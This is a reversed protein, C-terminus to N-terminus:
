NGAYPSRVPLKLRHALVVTTTYAPIGGKLTVFTGVPEVSDFYRAALANAPAADSGRVAILADMGLYRDPAGLFAFGRPDGDFAVAPQAPRVAEAARSADQWNSAALFTNPRDLLGKEALGQRLGSWSTAEILFGNLNDNGAITRFNSVVLVAVVAIGALSLASLGALLLPWLRGRGRAGALAKGLLPFLFLWGAMSWHPLGASGLLPLLNFLLIPPLALALLFNGAPSRRWLAVLGALSLGVLLWPLLYIAEGLLTRGFASLDPHVGGGGRGLQFRFSVWDHAGNWWLVPVFMLLALAAAAYPQPRALWRRHAPTLLLCFAGFLTLIAQYKSLLALGLCLGALVWARWAGDPADLARALCLAALLLALVLPGDPVVWGGVSAFFFVAFNLLAAAWLGAREGYFRATLAHLAWTSATFMLVFPLRLLLPSLERGFLAQMGGAIWFALPPHDFFSPQFPRSVALAYAEDQGLDLLGALALRAFTTLVLLILLARAAARKELGSADDSM